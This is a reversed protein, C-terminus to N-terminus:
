KKALLRMFSVLQKIQDESLKDKYAPMKGKGCSTINNLQADSQKQVEESRLDRMKLAKGISTSADGSAAHCVACKAKYLTAGDDASRAAPTILVLSVALM